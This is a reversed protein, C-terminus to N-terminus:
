ETKKPVCGLRIQGVDDMQEDSANSIPKHNNFHLVRLEGFYRMTEDGSITSIIKDMTRGFDGLEYVVPGNGTEIRRYKCEDIPAGTMPNFRVSTDEGQLIIQM